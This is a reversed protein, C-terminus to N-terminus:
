SRCNYGHNVSWLEGIFYRINCLRPHFSKLATKGLVRTLKARQNVICGISFCSLGDNTGSDDAFMTYEM